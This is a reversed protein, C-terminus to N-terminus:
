NFQQPSFVKNSCKKKHRYVESKELHELFESGDKVTLRNRRHILRRQSRNVGINLARNEVLAFFRGLRPMDHLIAPSFGQPQLLDVAM